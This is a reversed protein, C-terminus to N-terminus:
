GRLPAGFVRLRLACRVPPVAFPVAFLHERFPLRPFRRVRLLVTRMGSFAGRNLTRQVARLPKLCLRRPRIVLRKPEEVLATGCATVDIMHNRKAALGYGPQVDRLVKLPQRSRLVQALSAGKLGIRHAESMAFKGSCLGSAGITLGSILRGSGSVM